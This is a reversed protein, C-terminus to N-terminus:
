KDEMLTKAMLNLPRKLWILPPLNLTAFVEQDETKARPLESVPLIELKASSTELQTKQLTSASTEASFVTVTLLTVTTVEKRAAIVKLNAVLFNSPSKDEWIPAETRPQSLKVLM